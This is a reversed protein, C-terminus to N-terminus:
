SVADLLGEYRVIRGVGRLASEVLFHYQGDRVDVRACILFWSRPLHIGFAIIHELNWDIGADRARLRFYLVAPGLREALLHGSTHLMSIMHHRNAFVREWREGRETSEILVDISTDTLAPPVSTLTALVRAVFSTGREVMVRGRL